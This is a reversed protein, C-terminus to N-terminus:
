KRQRGRKLLSFILLVTLLYYYISYNFNISVKEEVEIKEEERLRKKNIMILNDNLFSEWYNLLNDLKLFIIFNIKKMFKRIKNLKQYINLVLLDKLNIPFTEFINLINYILHYSNGDLFGKRLDNKLNYIWNVLSLHCEEEFFDNYNVLKESNMIIENTIQLKHEIQFAKDYKFLNVIKEGIDETTENLCPQLPEIPDYITNETSRQDTIYYTDM